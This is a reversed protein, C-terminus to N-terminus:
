AALRRGSSQTIAVPPARRPPGDLVSEVVDTEVPSRVACRRTRFRPLASSCPEDAVTLARCLERTGSTVNLLQDRARRRLDATLALKLASSLERYVADRWACADVHLAQRRWGARPGAAPDTLVDDVAAAIDDVDLPRVPARRRRRGRAAVDLEPM